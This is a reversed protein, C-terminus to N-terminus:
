TYTHPGNRFRRNSHLNSCAVPFEFVTKFKKKLSRSFGNRVPSKADPIFCRGGPSRLSRPPNQNSSKVRGDSHRMGARLSSWSGRWSLQRCIEGNQHRRGFIAYSRIEALFGTKGPHLCEEGFKSAWLGTWRRQMARTSQKLIVVSAMLWCIQSRM